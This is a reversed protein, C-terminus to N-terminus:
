RSTSCSTRSRSCTQSRGEPSAQDLVIIGTHDDGLELERESLIM